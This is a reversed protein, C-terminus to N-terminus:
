CSRASVRAVSGLRGVHGASVRVSVRAGNLPIGIVGHVNPVSFRVKVSLEVPAFTREITKESGPVFTCLFSFAQFRAPNPSHGVPGGTPPTVDM